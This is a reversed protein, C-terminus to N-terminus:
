ILKNYFSYSKQQFNAKNISKYKEQLKNLKLQLKERTIKIDIEPFVVGLKEITKEIAKGLYIWKYKARGNQSGRYNVAWFYPGHLKGEKICKCNKKGCRQFKIIISVM